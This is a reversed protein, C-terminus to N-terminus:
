NKNTFGVEDVTDTSFDIIKFNEDIFHLGNIYFSDPHNNKYNHVFGALGFVGNQDRKIEIINLTGDENSTIDVVNRDKPVQGLSELQRILTVVLLGFQTLIKNCDDESMNVIKKM